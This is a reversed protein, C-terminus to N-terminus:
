GSGPACVQTIEFLFSGSDLSVEVGKPVARVNSALPQGNAWIQAGNLRIEMGPSFDPLVVAGHKGPPAALRLQHAQCGQGEWRVDLSSAGIPLSGQAFAVGDFAPALRWDNPSEQRAGLLYTTLFWTPSSGWGHSLSASYCCDANFREWWTTAGQNVMYGWYLRILELAEALRGAQGLGELVTFMGFVEVNPSAPDNSLLELLANAVAESEGPPVLGYALPWAQAFANPLRVQNQYLTTYYRRMPTYYLFTNVQNQTFDAKQQLQSAREPSGAYANIWAARRLADIYLSNVVTSQGYRNTDGNTDIYVTESWPGPTLDILRTVPDEYGELLRLFAELPPLVAGLISSDETLQLYEQASRVWAMGYDLMHANDGNPALARPRGNEFAEAMLLIGRRLLATEGFAARNALDIVYADGWWQGRERWPDAYADSMNAVLTDVGVQWIQNLLADSSQFSGRQSLPYHEELVRLARLRVPGTGWAAILVYRGARADLTSIPRNNGDLVWSDVQNWEPHPTGPYPLPRLTGPLLREDWGIDLITKAPGEVQAEVRGLVTRGLDLVIYTPLTSFTLTIAEGVQEVGVAGPQSLPEALLLRRGAHDGQHFPLDSFQMGATSVSLTVGNAPPNEISLVHAQFGTNISAVLVDPRNSGAPQWAAPQNDLRIAGAQEILTEIELNSAIQPTITIPQSDPSLELMQMGASLLGADAITLTIPEEVPFAISRPQYMVLTEAPSSQSSSTSPQYVPAIQDYQNIFAVQERVYTTSLDRVVAAQWADDSFAPMMWDQPLGNLDLLETPGILGWSHVPMADPNWAPASLAKWGPSTRGIVQLENSAKGQLHARLHPTSSESRRYNPAWQVLVAVLHEGAPLTGLSVVDFEHRTRSFRAPGRGMVVGDVWVQYRTDAFLHLEANSLAQALTFKHRFLTVESAKPPQNHAWIPSDGLIQPAYTGQIVPLYVYM